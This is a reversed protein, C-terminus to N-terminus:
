RHCTQLAPVLVPSLLAAHPDPVAHSFSLLRLHKFRTLLSESHCTPWLQAPPAHPPVTYCCPRPRAVWGEREVSEQLSSVVWAGVCAGVEGPVGSRERGGKFVHFFNGRWSPYLLIPVTCTSFQPHQLYPAPEESTAPRM